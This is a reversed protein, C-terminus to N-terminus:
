GADRAHHSGPQRRRGVGHRRAPPVDAADCLALWVSRPDVGDALAERATRGDLPALVLDNVLVGAYGPGFEEDVAIQFESLKM